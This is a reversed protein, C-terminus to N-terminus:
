VVGRLEEEFGGWLTDYEDGVIRRCYLELERRGGKGRWVTMNVWLLVNKNDDEAM